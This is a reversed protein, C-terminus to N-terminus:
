VERFATGLGAAYYVRLGFSKLWDILVNREWYTVSFYYLPDSKGRTRCQYPLLYVTTGGKDYNPTIHVWLTELAQTGENQLYIACKKTDIQQVYARKTINLAKIPRLNAYRSDHTDQETLHIYIDKTSM